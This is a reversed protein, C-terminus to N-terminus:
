DDEDEDVDKDGDYSREKRVKLVILVIGVAAIMVFPFWWPFGGAKSEVTDTSRTPTPTSGTTSDGEPEVTPQPPGVPPDAADSVTTPKDAVTGAPAPVMVAFSTFHRIRATIITEEMDVVSRLLLWEENVPDYYAITMLDETVGAPLLEPDYTYVLNPRPSFTMGSPTFSYVASVLIYGEPLPPSAASALLDISSSPVWGGDSYRTETGYLVTLVFREDPTKYITPNQASGGGGGGGSSKKNVTVAGVLINSLTTAASVIPSTDDGVELADSSGVDLVAPLVTIGIGAETKPATYAQIYEQGLLLAISLLSLLCTLWVGASKLIKSKSM